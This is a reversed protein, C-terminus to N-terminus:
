LTLWEEPIAPEIEGSVDVAHSDDAFSLLDLARYYAEIKDAESILAEVEHVMQDIVKQDQILGNDTNHTPTTIIIQSQKCSLNKNTANQQISGVSEFAEAEQHEQANVASVVLTSGTGDLEFTVKIRPVGRPSPAIHTLIFSGLFRNHRALWHEGQFIQIDITSQNQMCTSFLMTKHAPMFHNRPIIKAMRGGTTQIGLALHVLASTDIMCSTASASASRFAAHLAGEVPVVRSSFDIVGYVIMLCYLVKRLKMKTEMSDKGTWMLLRAARFQRLGCESTTKASMHVHCNININM